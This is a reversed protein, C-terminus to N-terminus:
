RSDTAFNVFDALLPLGLSNLRTLGFFRYFLHNLCDLNQFFPLFLVRVLIDSRLCGRRWVVEYACLGHIVHVLLNVATRAINVIAPDQWLVGCVNELEAIAWM